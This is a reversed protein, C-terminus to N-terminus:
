FGTQLSILKRSHCREQRLKVKFTQSIDRRELEMSQRMLELSREYYNVQPLCLLLNRCKCELTTPTRSCDQLRTVQTELQIRLQQLEEEHKQKLQEVAMETQISVTPGSIEDLPCVAVFCYLVTRLAEDDRSILIWGVTKM